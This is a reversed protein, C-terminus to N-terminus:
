TVFVICMSITVNFIEFSEKGWYTYLGYAILCFGSTEECDFIM